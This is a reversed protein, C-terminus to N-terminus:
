RSLLEMLIQAREGVPAKETVFEELIPGLVQVSGVPLEALIERYVSYAGRTALIRKHMIILWEKASQIMSPAASIMEKLYAQLEFGEVEHVLGWMVEHQETADDFAAFFYPLVAPDGQESLKIRADEFAAVEAESRMLRSDYLIQAYQARDM